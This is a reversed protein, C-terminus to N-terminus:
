FDPNSSQVRKYPYKANSDAISSRELELVMHRCQVTYAVWCLFFMAALILTTAAWGPVKDATEVFAIAEHHFFEAALVSIGCMEVSGEDVLAIWERFLRASDDHVDQMELQVVISGSMAYAFEVMEPSLQGVDAVAAVFESRKKTTLLALNTALTMHLAHCTKAPLPLSSFRRDKSMPGGSIHHCSEHERTLQPPAQWPMNKDPWKSCTESWYDFGLYAYSLKSPPNCELSLSRQNGTMFYQCARSQGKTRPDALPAIRAAVENHHDVPLVVGLSVSTSSFNATGNSGWRPLSTGLKITGTITYRAANGHNDGVFHTEILTGSDGGQKIGTIEMCVAAGPGRSLYFGNLATVDMAADGSHTALLLVLLTPVRIMM